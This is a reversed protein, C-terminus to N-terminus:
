PQSVCVGPLEFWFVTGQGFESHFGITGQHSEVINKCIVLGLGSGDSKRNDAADAQSFKEFVRSQFSLPIGQGHDEVEVRFGNALAILRLNVTSGATSFKIANSLLNDIVQRLRMPDAQVTIMQEPITVLVQVQFNHAFQDIDKVTKQVLQNVNTDCLELTFKGAEFKQVDLLDNILQSLRESNHLATTVLSSYSASDTPIAKSNILGLAGRISTLPTRLEHSVTSIFEDKIQNLQKLRANSQALEQMSEELQQSRISLATASQELAHTRETVKSELMLQSKAKEKVSQQLLQNVQRVYQLRYRHFGILLLVLMLGFLWHFLTRQWWHPVVKIFLSEYHESTVGHNNMALLQFEYNGPSLKPYFAYTRHGGDIWEDDFGVLRYQYSNQSVDNFVMASFNIELSTENPQLQTKPFETSYFLPQIDGHNVRLSTIKPRPAYQNVSIQSPEIMSIGQLTGAYIVGNSAVSISGFNMETATLGDRRSFSLIPQYDPSILNLGNDSLLWTRKNEHLAGIIQHSSLGEQMTFRETNNHVYDWLLLGRNTCIILVGQQDTELCQITNSPLDALNDINKQRLKGQKDFQFLGSYRTGVWITNDPMRRMAQVVDGILENNLESLFQRAQLTQWNFFVLGQGWLGFWAQDDDLFIMDRIIPRSNLLHTFPQTDVEITDQLENYRFLGGDTAIYVKGQPSTVIKNVRSFTEYSQIRSDQYTLRYLRESTGFWLADPDTADVSTVSFGFQEALPSNELEVVSSFANRRYSTYFLGSHRTGMWLLGSRDTLISRVNLSPLLASEQRFQTYINTTPNFRFVGEYTALLLQHDPAQQIRNIIPSADSIGDGKVPFTAIEWQPLSIASLGLRGGVWLRDHAYLLSRIENTRSTASADPYLQKGVSLGENKTWAHLGLTTGIWVVGADDEAVSWVRQHLLPTVADSAGVQKIDDNPSIRFLGATTGVWVYGQKDLHIAQIQFGDALFRTITTRDAGLRSIGLGWTGVWLRDDDDLLLKGADLQIANIQEEQLLIPVEIFNYGDYRLLGSDTTALWIFGENDQLLDYISNNPLGDDIGIRHLQPQAAVSLAILSLVCYLVIMGPRM